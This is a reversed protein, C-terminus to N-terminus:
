SKKFLYNFQQLVWLKIAKSSMKSAVYIFSTINEKLISIYVGLNYHIATHCLFLTAKQDPPCPSLQMDDRQMFTVKPLANAGRLWSERM